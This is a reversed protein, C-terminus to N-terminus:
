GAPFSSISAINQWEVKPASQRAYIEILVLSPGFQRYQAAIGPKGADL